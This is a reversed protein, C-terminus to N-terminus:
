VIRRYYKFYSDTTDERWTKLIDREIEYCVVINTNITRYKKVGSDDTVLEYTGDITLGYNNEYYFGGTTDFQIIHNDDTNEPYSIVKGNVDTTKLWEWKGVLSSNYNEEKNCSIVIASTLLILSLYSSKM